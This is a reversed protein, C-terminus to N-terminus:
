PVQRGVLIQVDAPHAIASTFTLKQPAAASNLFGVAGTGLLIHPGDLARTTAIGDATYSLNKDYVSSTVVLFLVEGAGAAPQVPVAVNAAGAAINVQIVDYAGVSIPPQNTALVPGGQIAVQFQWNIAISM